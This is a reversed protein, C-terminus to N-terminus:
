SINIALPQDRDSSFGSIGDYFEGGNMVRDKKYLWNDDTYFDGNSAKMKYQPSMTINDYNPSIMMDKPRYTNTTIADYIDGIKYGQGKDNNPAMIESGKNIQSIYEANMIDIADVGHSDQWTYNRFNFFSDRYNQQERDSLPKNYQECPQQNNMYFERTYTNEHECNRCDTFNPTKSALGTIEDMQANWDIKDDSSKKILNQKNKINSKCTYVDGVYDRSSGSGYSNDLGYDDSDSDNAGGIQDSDITGRTNSTNPVAKNLEITASMDNAINNYYDYKSDNNTNSINDINCTSCKKKDTLPGIDTMKEKHVVTKNPKIFMKFMLHIVVAAILALVIYTLFSQYNFRSNFM